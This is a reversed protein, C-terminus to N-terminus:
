KTKKRKFSFELDEKRVLKKYFILITFVSISICADALNFVPPFVEEGGLGFPAWEPWYFVLHVMDVVCGGLVGSYGEFTLESIGNYGVWYGFTENWTTGSNFIVGYFLNDIINGLAGSFILSVLCIFTFNASTKALRIIYYGIALVAIVRFLSLLYKSLVSGFSLGFAMGPNEVFDFQLFGLSFINEGLEFNCKVWLKLAQDLCVVLVIIYLPLYKKLM